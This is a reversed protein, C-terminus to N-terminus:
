RLVHQLGPWRCQSLCNGSTWRSRGPAEAPRAVSGSNEPKAWECYFLANSNLVSPLTYDVLVLDPYESCLLPTLDPACFLTSVRPVCNASPDARLRSHRLMPVGRRADAGCPRQHAHVWGSAGGRM